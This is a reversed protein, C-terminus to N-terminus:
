PESFRDISLFHLYCYIKKAMQHYKKQRSISSVKEVSAKEELLHGIIIIM